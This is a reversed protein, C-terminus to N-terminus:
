LVIAGVGAWFLLGFAVAYALGRMFGTSTASSDVVSVITGRAWPAQFRVLSGGASASDYAGSRDTRPFPGLDTM